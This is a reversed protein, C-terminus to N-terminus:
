GISTTANTDDRLQEPSYASYAKKGKNSDANVPKTVPKDGQQEHVIDAILDALLDVTRYSEELTNDIGGIEVIVSNPSLSQNYEGNGQAASKGWIGRSIGPYDKELRSHIESAFKENKKWNPNRHGIIFYVQAYSKNNITVTSDERGLADRHIDFFFQLDQHQSMAEKITSHSYKYSQNWKYGEVSSAYDKDSHAAGVGRKELQDQLRKGVLTINLESDNPNSSKSKLVPNWSERNHSHYIFVVKNNLQSSPQKTGSGDKGSSGPLPKFKDNQSSRPEEEGQTLQDPLPMYDAPGKAYQNGEPLRLPVTQERNARPLEGALLTKPDLPNMNTMLRVLLRAADKSDWQLQQASAPVGSMEMAIANMFLQTPMQAAIGKMGALPTSQAKQEAIVGIGIVIFFAASAVAMLMFMRGSLIIPEWKKLVRKNWRNNNSEDDWKM